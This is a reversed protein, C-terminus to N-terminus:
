RASKRMRVSPDAFVPFNCIQMTIRAVLSAMAECVGSATARSASSKRPRPDNSIVPRAFRSALKKKRRTNGLFNATRIM